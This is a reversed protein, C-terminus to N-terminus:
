LVGGGVGQQNFMNAAVEILLVNQDVNEYKSILWRQVCVWYAISEKVRSKPLKQRNLVVNTDIKHVSQTSSVMNRMMKCVM